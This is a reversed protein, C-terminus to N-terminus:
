KQGGFRVIETVNRIELPDSLPSYFSQDDLFAIDIQFYQIILMRFTNVPTISKYLSESGNEPLHYANLIRMREKYAADDSTLGPEGPEFIIQPGHDAQLIIVPDDPSRQLIKDVMEEVKQNIFILQNIYLRRAQERGVPEQIHIPNGDADFLFPSHPSPIHAFIFKPGDLAAIEAIQDLVCLRKYRGQRDLFQLWEAVPWILTSHIIRGITEDVLGCKIDQDVYRNQETIGQGSGFFITTYGNSKLFSNVTNNEIMQRPLELNLDTQNFEPHLNNLYDLNLSSALSLTTMAYNSVSEEAVFFGQKELASLFERNDFGYSEALTNSNAYSDLIIYYIDPLNGPSQVSRDSIEFKWAPEWVVHSTFRYAVIQFASLIILSAGVINLFSTLPTLETRTRIVLFIILMGILFLFILLHRHRLFNLSDFQALLDFFHGYSFFILLGGSVLIGAKQRDIGARRLLWLFFGAVGLTIMSLIVITQNISIFELHDAVLSLAPFIAFFFPHLILPSKKM